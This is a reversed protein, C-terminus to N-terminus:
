PIAPGYVDAEADLGSLWTEKNKWDTWTTSLMASGISDSALSEGGIVLWEWRGDQFWHPAGNRTTNLKTSYLVKYHDYDTFEDELAIVYNGKGHYLLNYDEPRELLEAEMAGSSDYLLVKESYNCYEGWKTANWVIQTGNLCFDEPLDYMERLEYKDNLHAQLLIEGDEPIAGKQTWRFDDKHAADKLDWPNFVENLQYKVEEDIKFTGEMDEMDQDVADNNDTIGYLAVCRFQHSSKDPEIWDLDFDWEAFVYPVRPEAYMGYAEVPVQMFMDECCEMPELEHPVHGKMERKFVLLFTDGPEWSGDDINVYNLVDDWTWDDDIVVMWDGLGEDWKFVWPAASWEGAGRPYEVLTEDPIRLSLTNDLNWKYYYYWKDQLLESQGLIDIEQEKTEMTTLYNPLDDQGVRSLPLDTNDVWKSILTPWFAAFGVLEEDDAIIQCLDYTVEHEQGWPEETDVTYFPHKNYKTMLDDYFEAYSFSNTEDGLDWQGRQSFEIQFPTTMKNEDIRKIDKIEMVYKKVKNFVLQITLEVLAQNEPPAKDYIRTKLLYIAKRPGDYILRIDDTEAYGNTRRGGHTDGPASADKSQQENRWNGGIAETAPPSPGAWLDSYLAYAWINKLHGQDVYHIDMVWGNSWKNEAVAPNAFVDIGDYKLGVSANGDILEGYKSFGIYLNKDEYPYLIYTDSALVGDDNMYVENGPINPPTVTFAMPIISSTLLVMIALITAIKKGNDLKTITEMANGM